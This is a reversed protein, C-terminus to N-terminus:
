RFQQTIMVPSATMPPATMLLATMLPRSCAMLPPWGSMGAARALVLEEVATPAFPSIEGEAGREMLKGM